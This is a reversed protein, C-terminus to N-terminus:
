GLLGPLDAISDITATPAIGSAAVADPRYKGTRVLISAIGADLGGGVDGEVDDGVMLAEGAEAGATALATAFFQRAPKGVVVPVVGSAYELAASWSGVDLVLGEGSRWYRNHQLCVLAAGDLLQRFASNMVPAAFDDGIDGLVIAAPREGASAEALEALDERLGDAVLVRVPSLGAARCHAVALGAPTVVEELDVEFGLSALQDRISMRSRSSTNTVLRISPVIERLAALADVAGPVTEGSVHLVGDIDLLLVRPREM